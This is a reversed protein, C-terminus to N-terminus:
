YVNVHVSESWTCLLKQVQFQAEMNNLDMSWYYQLNVLQTLPLHSKEFLSGKGTSVTARCVKLPCRWIRGDTVRNYVREQTVTGCRPCNMRDALLRTLFVFLFVSFTMHKLLAMRQCWDTLPWQLRAIWSLLSMIARMSASYPVNIVNSSNGYPINYIDRKQPVPTSSM